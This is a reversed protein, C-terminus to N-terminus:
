GLRCEGDVWKALLLVDRNQIEFHSTKNGLINVSFCFRPLNYTAIRNITGLIMIKERTIIM